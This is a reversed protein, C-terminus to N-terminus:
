NQKLTTASKFVVIPSNTPNAQPLHDVHTIFLVHPITSPITVLM